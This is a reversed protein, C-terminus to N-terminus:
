RRLSPGGAGTPGRRNRSAPALLSGAPAHAVPQGVLRMLTRADRLAHGGWDNNFYVYVARGTASWRRIKRAWPRLRSVGYAGSGAAGHFRLYTWAATLPESRPYPWRTSHALVLAAGHRRLTDLVEASELWSEHRFELAVRPAIGHERGAARLAALTEDLRDPRARLTGPLQVLLPGLKGGLHRANALFREAPERSEALKKVHTLYRSVKVAFTFGAPTQSAWRAFSEAAPLMYFSNNIEVTPFLRSLHELWRAAPVGPFWPRWHPYSWGSTGIRVAGRRERAM